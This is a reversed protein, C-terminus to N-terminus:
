PTPSVGLEVRFIHGLNVHRQLLALDRSNIVGDHVVDAVRRDLPVPVIGWLNIYRQLLSLDLFDVRGDGNVDGWLLWRAYLTHDEDVTVVTEATVTTGKACFWGEFRYFRYSGLYPVAPRTPIPLEGYYCGYYWGAVVPISKPHVIVDPSVDLYVTVKPGVVRVTFPVVIGRYNISVPHPGFVYFDCDCDFELMESIIPFFANGPGHINDILVKAGTDEIRGGREIIFEDASVRVNQVAAGAIFFQYWHHRERFYHGVGIYNVGPNLINARHVDSGMWEYMVREPSIQGRAANAARIGWPTPVGVDSLATFAERGCPRIHGVRIFQEEARIRTAYALGTKTALPHLGRAIRERNVINMVEWEEESIVHNAYPREGEAEAAVTPVAMLLVLLVM